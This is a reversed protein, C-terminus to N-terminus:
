RAGCALAHRLMALSQPAQAAFDTTSAEISMRGAYGVKCLNEFFPGYEAEGASLPYV